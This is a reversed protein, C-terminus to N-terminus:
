LSALIEGQRCALLTHGEGEVLHLSARPFV